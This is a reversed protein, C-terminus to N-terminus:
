ALPRIVAYGENPRVRSDRAPVERPHRCLRSLLFQRLQEPQVDPSSCRQGEICHLTNASDRDREIVAQIRRFSFRTNRARAISAPVFLGTAPGCRAAAAPSRPLRKPRLDLVAAAAAWCRPRFASWWEMRENAQLGGFAVLSFRASCLWSHGPLRAEHSYRSVRLARFRLEWRCCRYRFRSM